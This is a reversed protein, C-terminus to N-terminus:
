GKATHTHTHTHTHAYTRTHTHTCWLSQLASLNWSAPMRVVKPVHFCSYPHEEHMYVGNQTAGGRAIQLVMEDLTLRGVLDKLPSCSLPAVVM